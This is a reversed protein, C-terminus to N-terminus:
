KEPYPLNVAEDKLLITALQLCEKVARLSISPYHKDVITQFDIGQAVLEVICYVPIRTGKIVPKGYYLNPDFTIQSFEEM